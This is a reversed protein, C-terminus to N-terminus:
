VNEQWECIGPVPFRNRDFVPPADPSCNTPEALLARKLQPRRHSARWAVSRRGRRCRRKGVDARADPRSASSIAPIRDQRSPSRYSRERSGALPPWARRPRSSRRRRSPLCRSAKEARQRERVVREAAIPFSRALSPNQRLCPPGQAHLERDAAEAGRRAIARAGSASVGARGRLRGAVAAIHRAGM